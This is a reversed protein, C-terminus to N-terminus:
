KSVFIQNLVNEQDQSLNLLSDDTKNAKGAEIDSSLSAFVLRKLSQSNDPIIEATITNLRSKKNKMKLDEKGDDHRRIDEARMERCVPCQYITAKIINLRDNSM